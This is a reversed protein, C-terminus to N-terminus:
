KTILEFGKSFIDRLETLQVDSSTLYYSFKIDGDKVFVTFPTYITKYGTDVYRGYKNKIAYVETFEGLVDILKNYFKSPEKLVEVRGEKNLVIDIEENTIDCFYINKIRYNVSDIYLAKKILAVDTNEDIFVVIGTDNSLLDLVKNQNINTFSGDATKQDLIDEDQLKYQRAVQSWIVTLVFAVGLIISLPGKVLNKKKKKM